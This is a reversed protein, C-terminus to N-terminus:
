EYNWDMLRLGAYSNSHADANPNWVRSIAIVTIWVRIWIGIRIGVM